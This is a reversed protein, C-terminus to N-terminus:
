STTARVAAGTTSSRKGTTASRRAPPERQARGDDRQRCRYAAHRRDMGPTAGRGRRARGALRLHGHRPPACRLRRRLRVTRHRRVRRPLGRRDRPHTARARLHAPSHLRPQRAQSIAYAAAPGHLDDDAAHVPRTRTGDVGPGDHAVLLLHGSRPTGRARRRVPQARLLRTTRQLLRAGRRAAAGLDPAPERRHRLRLPRVRSRVDDHM